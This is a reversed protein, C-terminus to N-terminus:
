DDGHAGELHRRLFRQVDGWLEHAPGDRYGPRTDAFFAHGAGEFIKVEAVGGGDRVRRGVEQLTQPSPNGDEAGGVVFLPCRVNHVLDIVPTPRQPTTVADPSAKELFSGWCDVACDVVDSSSAFLLAQRGGSCFGICGVAGSATDLGRLTASCAVLDTVVQADELGLLKAMISPMDGPTPAGTRTYLDPALADYGAAAFRRAVDRIHDNLGMAEHVVILGGRRATSVPRALYADIHGPESAVVLDATQVPTDGVAGPLATTM